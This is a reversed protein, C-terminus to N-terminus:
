PRAVLDGALWVVTSLGGGAALLVWWARWASRAAIAYLAAFAWVAFSLLSATIVRDPRSMPLVLSLFATSGWAVFYGAVVAALVRSAVPWRSPAARSTRPRAAAPTASPSTVATM